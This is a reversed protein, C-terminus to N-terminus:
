FSLGLTGSYRASGALLVLWTPSGAVAKLVCLMRISTKQGSVVAPNIQRLAEM